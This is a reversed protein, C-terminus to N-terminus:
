RGNTRAENTIFIFKPGKGIDSEIWIRGGTYSYKNDKNKGTLLAQIREMIVM